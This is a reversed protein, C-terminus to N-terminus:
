RQQTNLKRKGEWIKFSFAIFSIHFKQLNTMQQGSAKLTLM